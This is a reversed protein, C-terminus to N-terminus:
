GGSPVETKIKYLSGKDTAVYLVGGPGPLPRGTVKGDLPLDWDLRGQPTVALLRSDDAGLYVRRSNEDVAPCSVAKYLPASWIKSGNALDLAFLENGACFYLQGHGSLTPATLDNRNVSYSWRPNGDGTSDFSYVMGRTLRDIKGPNVTVYLRGELGAALNVTKIDGLWYRWLIKGEGSVALLSYGQGKKGTVVFVAQSNGACALIERKDAIQTRNADRSDYRQMLWQYSGEADLAYLGSPLPLYLLNGPGFAIMASNSKDGYVAFNWGSSGNLKVEQISAGGPFFISGQGDFVPQGTKGGASIAAEWLKRGQGDVAILKNGSPLYFLGNPGLILDTAKGLRATQWVVVPRTEGYGEARSAAAALLFFVTLFSIIIKRCM